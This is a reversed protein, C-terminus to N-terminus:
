FSFTRRYQCDSTLEIAQKQDSLINTASPTKSIEYILVEGNFMDLFPDLYLKKIVLYGKKHIEYYKFETTDTTIKQHPIYTHFRRHIRNPAIREIKEKYSSYKRSKQTFSTGLNWVKAHNKPSEKQKPLIAQM